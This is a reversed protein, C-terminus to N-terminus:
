KNIKCKLIIKFDTNNGILDGWLLHRNSIALLSGKNNEPKNKTSFMHKILNVLHLFHRGTNSLSSGVSSYKAYSNSVMDTQADLMFRCAYVLQTRWVIADTNYRGTIM